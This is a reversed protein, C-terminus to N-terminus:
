RCKPFRLKVCYLIQQEACVGRISFAKGLLCDFVQQCVWFLSKSNVIHRSARMMCGFLENANYRGVTRGLAKGTQFIRNEVVIGSPLSARSPSSPPTMRLQLQQHM